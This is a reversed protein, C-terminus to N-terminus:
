KHLNCLRSAQQVDTVDQNASAKMHDVHCIREMCTVVIYTEQGSVFFCCFVVSQLWLVFHYSISFLIKVIHETGRTQKKLFHIPFM